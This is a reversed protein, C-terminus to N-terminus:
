RLYRFDVCAFLTDYLSTWRAADTGSDDLIERVLEQEEPIPPRGIM